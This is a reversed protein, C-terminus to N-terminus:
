KKAAKWPKLILVEDAYRVGKGKYPDPRRFERIVAATQGVLQKDIGELILVDNWKPDKEVKATIGDPLQYEIPHSYWLKLVLKNGQVQVGYWVGVVLLKKSWGKSVWEVMNSLVSRVTGWLAKYMDNQITVKLQNDEMKIEVGEPLSFELEWKPGKVKVVEWDIKVEVGSPLQIPLKGIRSM